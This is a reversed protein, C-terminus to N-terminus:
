LDAIKDIVAIGVWLAGNAFLILGLIEWMM